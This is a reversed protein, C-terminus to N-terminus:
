SVRASAPAARGADAPSLALPSGEVPRGPDKPLTLRFCSGQEPEGWAQLEGAHLRADELAIALGLGTGGTTRARAPDARWFRNFVMTAEGPRLGLGYDRVAVAVAHEDDAVRIEVPRGEGHEVANVLLNRLIREVRRSDVLAECPHGPEITTVESGRREALARCSDVVTAVSRRLDTPEVDLVAAGSDFRSIELLDTLLAEFRDLEDHLLEASRAVTSPFDARSGYLLDAAMRITTLPTRLEHSVDSVFRQQLRSLDELQRIQRQLSEAMENFSTALTALDDEGGASMREDLKGAALREAVVAASRVPRVVLGTVVYAIIGILVMLTLGGVLFTREVVALSDREREMPYVFYIGYAGARPLEVQQGIVWSPVPAPQGSLRISVIQQRQTSPDAAVRERLEEPIDALGVEGSLVVPVVVPSANTALRALVVYRSRETGAQEQVIGRAATTLREPSDVLDTSNFQLQARKTLQLAEASAVARRDEVLGEGIQRYLYSGLLALVLVGITVTTAVVRFFLSRRWTRRLTGLGGAAGARLRAVDGM